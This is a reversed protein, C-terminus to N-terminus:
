SEGGGEQEREARRAALRRDLTPKSIGLLEAAAATTVRLALREAEIADYLEREARTINKSLGTILDKTEQPVQVVHGVPRPPRQM